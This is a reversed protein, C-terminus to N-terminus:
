YFPSLFSSTKHIFLSSDCHSSHFGNQLLFSFFTSFWTRPAQKLGYLAKHLKCVLSPNSPDVFSQPQTMYVKEDLFGHLFVNSIDCQKISWGFHLALCLLVRITPQKAVFSFTEQYDIGAEQLYGKAVLHAKYRAISGDSNRKLWFM